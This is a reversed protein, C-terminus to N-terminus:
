LTHIWELVRVHSSLFMCDLCCKKSAKDSLKLDNLKKKLKELNAQRTKIGKQDNKTMQNLEKKKYLVVLSENEVSVQKNIEDQNSTEYTLPAPAEKSKLLENEEDGTSIYLAQHPLSPWIPPPPPPPPPPPM